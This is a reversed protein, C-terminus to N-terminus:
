ASLEPLRAVHRAFDTIFVSADNVMDHATTTPAFVNEVIIHVALIKHLSQRFSTLFGTPLRMGPAQHAIMETFVPKFDDELRNQLTIPIGVHRLVLLNLDLGWKPNISQLVSSASEFTGATEASSSSKATWSANYCNAWRSAVEAFQDLQTVEGAQAHGFGGHRQV